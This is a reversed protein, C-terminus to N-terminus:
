AVVVIAIVVVVDSTGLGDLCAPQNLESSM